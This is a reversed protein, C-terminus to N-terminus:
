ASHDFSPLPCAGAAVPARADDPTHSWDVQVRLGTFTGYSGAPSRRAPGSALSPSCGFCCRAANCIPCHHEILLFSGTSGKERRAEAM